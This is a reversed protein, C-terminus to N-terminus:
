QVEGSFIENSYFVNQMINTVAEDLMELIREITNAETYTLRDADEPVDPMGTPLASRLLRINELYRHMESITPYDSVTWDTRTVPSLNWGAIKLREIVYEVASEVRNLDTYNYAGKLSSLWETLEADTMSWSKAALDKVRQVDLATRDTILKM